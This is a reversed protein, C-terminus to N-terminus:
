QYPVNGSPPCERSGSRPHGPSAPGNVRSLREPVEKDDASQLETECRSVARDRLSGSLAAPDRPWHHLRASSRLRRDADRNETTSKAAEDLGHQRPAPASPGNSTAWAARGEIRAAQLPEDGARLLSSSQRRLGLDDVM